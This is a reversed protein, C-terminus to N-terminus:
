KETAYLLISVCSHLKEDRGAPINATTREVNTRLGKASHKDTCNNMRITM